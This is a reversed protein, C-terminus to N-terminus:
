NANAAEKLRALNSEHRIQEPSKGPTALAVPQAEEDMGCLKWFRFIPLSKDREGKIKGLIFDFKDDGYVRLKEEFLPTLEELMQKRVGPILFRYETALAAAKQKRTKPKEGVPVEGEKEERRKEERTNSQSAETVYRTVSPTVSKNRRYKAQREAAKTKAEKVPEVNYDEFFRPFTIGHEDEILWEASQMAAGFGPLDAIDDVINVTVGTVILDDGHRKGRHRMVGWVTVLAGVTACRTVNRTVTMDRQCNQSIYAALDGDKDMLFDAIVCVKPDRYLDTRMKIWDFAM